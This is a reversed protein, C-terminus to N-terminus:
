SGNQDKPNEVLTDHQGASTSKIIVNSQKAVNSDLSRNACRYALVPLAIALMKRSPLNGIQSRVTPNLM